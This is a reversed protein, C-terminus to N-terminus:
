IEKDFNIGILYIEKGSTLYEEYYKKDIIQAVGDGTGM